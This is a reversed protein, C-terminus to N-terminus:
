SEEHIEELPCWNPRGKVGDEMKRDAALCFRRLYYMPKYSCWEYFKCEQCTKPMDVGHLIVSM